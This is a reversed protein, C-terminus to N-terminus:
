KTVVGQMKIQMKSLIVLLKNRALITKQGMGVNGATYQENCLHIYRRRKTIRIRVILKNTIKLGYSYSRNKKNVTMDTNVWKNTKVLSRYVSQSIIMIKVM